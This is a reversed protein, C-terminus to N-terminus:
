KKAPPKAAPAAPKAAAPKAEAGPAAAPAGAAPAVAPAEAAAEKKAKKKAAAKISKVKRLGLVSDKEERWNGAEELIKIREARTLVNRHKVLSGGTRLSKHISM